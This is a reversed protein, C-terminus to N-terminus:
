GLVGWEKERDLEIELTHERKGGSFRMTTIEESKGEKQM